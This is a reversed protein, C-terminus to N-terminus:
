HMRWSISRNCRILCDWFLGSHLSCLQSNTCRCWFILALYMSDKFIRWFREGYKNQVLVSELFCKFTYILLSSSFYLQINISDDTSTTCAGLEGWPHAKEWWCQHRLPWLFQSPERLSRMVSSMTDRRCYPQHDPPQSPTDTYGQHIYWCGLLDQISRPAMALRKYVASKSQPVNYRLLLWTPSWPPPLIYYRVYFQPNKSTPIRFDAEFNYINHYPSGLM